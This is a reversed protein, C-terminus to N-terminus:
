SGNQNKNRQSADREARLREREQAAFQARAENEEEQIEEASAYHSRYEGLFEPEPPMPSGKIHARMRAALWGEVDEAIQPLSRRLLEPFPYPPFLFQGAEIVSDYLADDSLYLAHNRIAAWSEELKADGENTLWFSRPEQHRPLVSALTALEATIQRASDHSLKRREAEKTSRDTRRSQFYGGAIALLGGVATGIAPQFMELLDM